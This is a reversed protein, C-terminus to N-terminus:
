SVVRMWIGTPMLKIFGATAKWVPKEHGSFDYISGCTYAGPGDIRYEVGMGQSAM